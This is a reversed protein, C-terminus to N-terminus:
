ARDAAGATRRRTRWWWAAGALALVGPGCHVALVGALHPGGWDKAYSEPDGWGIMVLEAVARGVFYLAPLAALVPLLWRRAWARPRRAVALVVLLVVLLVVVLLLILPGLLKVPM